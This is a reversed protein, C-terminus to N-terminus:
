RVVGMHHVRRVKAQEHSRALKPVFEALRQIVKNFERLVSELRAATRTIRKNPTSNETDRSIPSNIKRQEGERHEGLYREFITTNRENEVGAKNSRTQGDDLRNQSKSWLPSYSLTRRRENATNNGMNGIDEFDTLETGQRIGAINDRTTIQQNQSDYLYQNSQQSLSNWSHANDGSHSQLYINELENEYTLKYSKQNNRYRGRNYNSRKQHVEELEKRLRTLENTRSERTHKQRDTTKRTSETGLRWTECFIGGKLRIKKNSEADQITIYDKGKRNIQLGLDKFSKIIDDRNEIVGSSIRKLTFDILLERIKDVENKKIDQGWRKLRNYKIDAQPPTFLRQREPDDPRAWNEKINYLDRLKDFDKQWGPPCPNFSKGTTLEVRPIVFHLEHHNAHSHRVWLISYQEQEFGAFAIKEFDNMLEKEQKPSIKDDPHWSLVGSTYKWSTDLCNILQATLESEGRLAIPPATDRNPCDKRVLYDTALEGRGQGHAFVKIYM